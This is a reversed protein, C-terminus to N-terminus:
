KPRSDIEQYIHKRFCRLDFALYEPRSEWLQQPTLEEHKKNDVDQKLLRFAPSRHWAAEAAETRGRQVISLDHGYALTDAQMRGRDRDVANILRTLGDKWNKYIWKKHEEHSEYLTKFDTSATVLGRLIDARLLAKSASQGWNKKKAM